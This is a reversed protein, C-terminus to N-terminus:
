SCSKLWNIFYIFYKKDKFYKKLNKHTKKSPYYVNHQTFLYNEICVMPPAGSGYQHSYKAFMLVTMLIIGMNHRKRPLM